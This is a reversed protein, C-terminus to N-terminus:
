ENPAGSSSLEAIFDGTKRLRTPRRLKPAWGQYGTPLPLTPNPLHCQHLANNSSVDTTTQQSISQYMCHGSYDTTSDEFSPLRYSDGLDPNLMSNGINDYHGPERLSSPIDGDPGTTLVGGNDRGSAEDGNDGGNRGRDTSHDAGDNTKRSHRSGAGLFHPTDKHIGPARRCKAIAPPPLATEIGPQQPCVRASPILGPEEGRPTFQSGGHGCPFRLFASCLNQRFPM